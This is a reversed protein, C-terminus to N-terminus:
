SSPDRRSWPGMWPEWHVLRRRGDPACPQLWSRFPGAPLVARIDQDEKQQRAREGALAEGAELARLRRSLPDGRRLPDVRHLTGM